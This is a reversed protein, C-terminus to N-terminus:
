YITILRIHFQSNEIFQHKFIHSYKGARARKLGKVGSPVYSVAILKTRPNEGEENLGYVRFGGFIIDDEPLHALFEEYGGSGSGSIDFQEKDVYKLALWNTEGGRSVEEWIAKIKEGDTYSVMNTHFYPRPLTNTFLSETQTCGGNNVHFVMYPIYVEYKTYTPIMNPLYM